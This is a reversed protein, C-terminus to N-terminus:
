PWSCSTSPSILRAVTVLQDTNISVEAVGGAHLAEAAQRASQVVSSYEILMSRLDVATEASLHTEVEIGDVGM